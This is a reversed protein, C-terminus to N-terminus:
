DLRSRGRLATEKNEDRKGYIMETETYNLLAWARFYYKVLHECTSFDSVGEKTTINITKIKDNLQTTCNIIEKRREAIFELSVGAFPLSYEFRRTTFEFTIKSMVAAM